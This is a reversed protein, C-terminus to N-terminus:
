RAGGRTTLVVMDIRAPAQPTTAAGHTLADAVDTDTAHYVFRDGRDPPTTVAVIRVRPTLGAQEAAWWLLPEVGSIARGPGTPTHPPTTVIVSGQLTTRHRCALLVEVLDSGTIDPQPRLTILAVPRPAQDQDRLQTPTSIVLYRRGTTAAVARLHPDDGISLITDGRRTYVHLLRQTLTTTLQSGPEPSTPDDDHDGLCWLTTPPEDTPPPRDGRGTSPDNPGTRPDGVHTPHPDHGSSATM